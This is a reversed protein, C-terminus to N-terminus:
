TTQSPEHRQTTGRVMLEVPLLTSRRARVSPQGRLLALLENAAMRGMEELPLRVTTLPPTLRDVFPMDNFGTLSVDEPCRVGAARLADLAGLAILDNGAVVGSFRDPGALVATMGDFGAAETFAGTVRVHADGGPLSDARLAAEFAEARDRGTSLHQPGALHLLRRHGLGRLHQVAMAIGAREDGGVYPWRGRRTNRNALVAAVGRDDLDELLPDDWEATAIIFGDAGRALLSEVQSRPGRIDNNTDSLVVTYGATTLVQEAGRLILSFLPNTIDPVVVGVLYSRATRLGRAHANPVYGLREAARAVRRVTDRSVHRQTNPNLARSATGAHVGAARAVDALKVREVLSPYAVSRTEVISQQVLRGSGPRPGTGYLKALRNRYPTHRTALKVGSSLVSARLARASRGGVM